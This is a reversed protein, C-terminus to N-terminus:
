EKNSLLDLSPKSPVAAQEKEWEALLTRWTHAQDKPMPSTGGIEGEGIVQYGYDPAIKHLYCASLIRHCNTYDICACCLVVRQRDFIHRFANSGDVTSRRKDMLSNFYTQYNVWSVYGRKAGLVMSWNDPALICPVGVKSVTGLTIDWRDSGEYSLHATAVRLVKTGDM